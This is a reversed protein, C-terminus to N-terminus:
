SWSITWATYTKQERQDSFSTDEVTYGNSELVRIVASKQEESTLTGMHKGVSAYMKGLKAQSEIESAIKSICFTVEKSNVIDKALAKAESAKM